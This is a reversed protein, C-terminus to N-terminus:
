WALATNSSVANTAARCTLRGAGPGPRHIPGASGAQVSATIPAILFSIAESKAVITVRRRTMM